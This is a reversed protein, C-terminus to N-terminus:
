KHFKNGLKVVERDCLSALKIANWNRQFVKKRRASRSVRPFILALAAFKILFIFETTLILSFYIEEIKM